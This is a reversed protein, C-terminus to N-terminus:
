ENSWSAVVRHRIHELKGTRDTASLYCVALANYQHPFAGVKRMLSAAQSESLQRGSLHARIAPEVVHRLPHRFRRYLHELMSAASRSPLKISRPPRCVEHIVMFAANPSIAPAQACLRRWRLPSFYPFQCDIREVFEVESM